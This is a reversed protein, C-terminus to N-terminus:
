VISIGLHIIRLFSATALHAIHVILLVTPTPIATLIVVKGSASLGTDASEAWSLCMLLSPHNKLLIRLNRIFPQHVCPSLIHSDSKKHSYHFVQPLSRKLSFLRKLDQNQLSSIWLAHNLNQFHEKQRYRMSTVALWTPSEAQDPTM